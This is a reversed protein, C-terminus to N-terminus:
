DATMARLWPRVEAELLGSVVTPDAHAIQEVDEKTLTASMIQMGGTSDIFPGGEFLQGAQLLGSFYRVHEDVGAQEQFNVGAQWRPGPRHVIVQHIQAM